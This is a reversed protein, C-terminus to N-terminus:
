LSSNEKTTATTQRWLMREIQFLRFLAKFAKICEAVFQSSRREFFRANVNNVGTTAQRFKNLSKKRTGNLLKVSLSSAKINLIPLRLRHCCCAASVLAKSFLFFNTSAFFNINSFTLLIHRKLIHVCGFFLYIYPLFLEFLFVAPSLFLLSRFAICSKHKSNEQFLTHEDTLLTETVQFSANLSQM